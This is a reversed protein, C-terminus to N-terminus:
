IMFVFLLYYSTRASEFFKSKNLMIEILSLSRKLDVTEKKSQFLRNHLCRGASTQVNLAPKPVNKVISWITSKASMAANKAFLLACNAFKNPM